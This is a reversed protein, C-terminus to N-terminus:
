GADVTSIYTVSYARKIDELPMEPYDKQLMEWIKSPHSAQIIYKSDEDEKFQVLYSQKNEMKNYRQRQKVNLM